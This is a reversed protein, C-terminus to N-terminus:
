SLSIDLINSSTNVINLSFENLVTKIKSGCEIVTNLPFLSIREQMVTNIVFADPTTNKDYSNNIFIQRLLSSFDIKNPQFLMFDTNFFSNYTNMSYKISDLAAAPANLSFLNSLDALPLVDAAIYLVKSYQTLTWAQIKFLYDEAKDSIDGTCNLFNRKLIHTWVKSLITLVSSSIEIESPVLLVRDYDPSVTELMGGLTIICQLFSYKDDSEGTYSTVFAYKSNPLKDNINTSKSLIDREQSYTDSKTIKIFFFFYFLFFSNCKCM